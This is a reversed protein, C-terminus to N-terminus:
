HNRAPDRDNDYLASYTNEPMDVKWYGITLTASPPLGREYRLYSRLSRVTASEASVWAFVEGDAPFEATRVTDALLTTRGAPVGDRYLWRVTMGPPMPLPLRDAEDAVEIFVSGVAEPPLKGGLVAIAPLASEDGAILYRDSPKITRGGPGAIGLYDGPQARQAWNSAAGGPEHLVFDLQLERAVPDYDRVTYTRMVPRRDETPWRSVGEEDPVPMMPRSQGPLPLYIKVNPGSRDEGFGAIESGGLTIRRIRPAIM